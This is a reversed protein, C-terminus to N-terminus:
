GLISFAMLIIGIFRNVPNTDGDNKERNNSEKIANFERKKYPAM